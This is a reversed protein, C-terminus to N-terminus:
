LGQFSNIEFADCNQLSKVALPTLIADDIYLQEALTTSHSEEGLQPESCLSKNQINTLGIEEFHLQKEVVDVLENAVSLQKRLTIRLAEAGVDVILRMFKFGNTKIDSSLVSM